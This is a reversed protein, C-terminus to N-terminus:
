GGAGEVPSPGSANVDPEEVVTERIRDTGDAARLVITVKVALCYACSEIVRERGTGSLRSADGKMWNHKLCRWHIRTPPQMCTM